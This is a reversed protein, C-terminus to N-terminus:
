GPGGLALAKESSGGLRVYRRVPLAAFGCIGGAVLVFIPNFMANLLSDISYLVVIIALVAAPAIRPHLWERGPVRRLLLIAPLLLTGMLAVLGVLGRKGFAIIWLGDTIAKIGRRENFPRNRNWGGWGFIPREWARAVLLDENELRYSFSGARESDILKAVSIVPEGSWSGTARLSIYTVPVAILAVILVSSRVLKTGFLTGTGVILLVIALLAKCFVTITVLVPVVLLMPFIWLRKMAGSAWLWVGAVSAATMWMGLALGSHMFVRPRYGGFRIHTRFPSQAFGYVDGHLRPSMRIEWVCFPIYVLGGIFIGIALERLGELDSFYVRGIFYPVGWAVTQNIMELIGDNVGLGNSISSILPVICWVAMPVDFWGPRITLLRSGDFIIAALLVSLSTVAVKSYPPLGEFWLTAMPLFLWGVLFAVIVARRPALAAFLLLVVLPWVFLAIYVSLSM